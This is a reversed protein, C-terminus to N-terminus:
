SSCARSSILFKPNFSLSQRLSSRTSPVQLLSALPLSLPSPFSFLDARTEKSEEVVICWASAWELTAVLKSPM